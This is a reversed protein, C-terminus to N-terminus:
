VTDDVPMSLCGTLDKSHIHLNNIRIPGRHSVVYPINRGKEDTQWLFAYPTYDIASWISRLGTMIIGNTHFPDVGGLYIGLGASDFVTTAYHEYNEYTAAPVQEAPWHTPLIQVLAPQEKWFTELAQMETMFQQTIDTERIYRLCHQTFERLVLQTKIFCIGSACREYNDFMFSMEKQSFATEWRVPDDYLLNDLEIFFVNSLDRQIMLQYLVFFREFGYIFLNERGKLGELYVFKHRYETICENFKAHLVTRYPVITVRYTDRLLAVLPSEEDSVIFYVPGDYFLRVQHVTDVAYTPLKGIFCYAIIM